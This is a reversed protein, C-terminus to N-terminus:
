TNTGDATSRKPIDEEEYDRDPDIPGESLLEEIYSTTRERRM